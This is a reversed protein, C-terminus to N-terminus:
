LPNKEVIFCCIKWKKECAVVVIYGEAKYVKNSNELM